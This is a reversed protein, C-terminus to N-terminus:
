DTSSQVEDEFGKNIKINNQVRNIGSINQVDMELKNSELENTAIGDITVDRGEVKIAANFVNHSYLKSIIKNRLDSELGPRFFYNSVVVLTSIVLLSILFLLTFPSKPKSHQKLM